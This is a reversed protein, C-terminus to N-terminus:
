DKGEVHIHKGDWTIIIEKPRKAVVKQWQLVMKRFEEKPMRFVPDSQDFLDKIEITGDDLLDVLM